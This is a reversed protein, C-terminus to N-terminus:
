QKSYHPSFEKNYRHVVFAQIFFCQLDVTIIADDKGYVIYISIPAEATRMKYSSLWKFSHSLSINACYLRMRIITM